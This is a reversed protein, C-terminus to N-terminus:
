PALRETWALTHTEADISAIGGRLGVHVIGQWELISVPRLGNWFVKDLITTIKKTMLDIKYLRSQTAVWLQRNGASSLAWAPELFDVLWRAAWIGDQSQILWLKGASKQSPASASLAYLGSPHRYLASIGDGALIRPKGGAKPNLVLGNSDGVLIGGECGLQVNSPLKIGRINLSSPGATVNWWWDASAARQWAPSNTLPVNILNWEPQDAALSPAPHCFFVLTLVTLLAPSRRNM